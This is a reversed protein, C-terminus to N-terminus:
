ASGKSDDRELHELDMSEDGAWEAYSRRDYLDRDPHRSGWRLAEALAETVTDGNDMMMLMLFQLRTIAIGLQALSAKSM